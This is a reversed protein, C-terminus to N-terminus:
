SVPASSGWEKAAVSGDTSSLIRQREMQWLHFYNDYHHVPFCHQQSHIKMQIRGGQKLQCPILAVERELSEFLHRGHLESELPLALLWSGCELQVLLDKDRKRQKIINAIHRKLQEATDQGYMNVYNTFQQQPFIALALYSEEEMQKLCEEFGMMNLLGTKSHNFMLYREYADIVSWNKQLLLFVISLYTMILTVLLYYKSQWLHSLHQKWSQDVNLYLRTDFSPSRLPQSIKYNFLARHNDRPWDSITYERGYSGKLESAYADLGLVGIFRGKDYVGVTLTIVNQDTILDQYEGTFTISGHNEALGHKITNVWFPREEIVKDFHDGNVSNALDSPASIIFKDKSIFYFASVKDVLRVLYAMVNASTLRSMAEAGIESDRECMSEPGSYVFDFGPGNETDSIFYCTQQQKKKVMGYPYHDGHLESHTTMEFEVSRLTHTLDRLSSLIQKSELQYEEQAEDHADILILFLFIGFVVTVGLLARKIPFTSQYSV